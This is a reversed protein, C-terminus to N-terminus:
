FQLIKKNFTLALFAKSKPNIKRSKDKSWTKSTSPRQNSTTLKIFIVDESDKAALNQSPKLKLLPKAEKLKPFPSPKHCPNKAVYLNM